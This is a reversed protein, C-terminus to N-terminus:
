SVETNIPVTILITTGHNHNSTIALTGQMKQVRSKINRLGLGKHHNSAIGVGNDTIELMLNNKLDYELTIKILTAKSHKICNHLGEEIIHYLNVKIFDNIHEWKIDDNHNFNYDLKGLYSRNQILKTVMLIFDNNYEILNNRLDHSLTRIETEIRQLEQLNFHHKKIVKSSGRLDLNGWGIRLAFLYSLIGDHLDESIRIREQNRGQKLKEHQRLTLLYIQENAKQQNTELQLLKNEAKQRYLWYTMIILLIILISGIIVWKIKSSLQENKAIYQDTEYQIRTFKNRTQREQNQIKKNLGIYQHLYNLANEPDMRSLLELTELLNSNNNIEQSLIYAKQLHQLAIATDKKSAYYKSLHVRSMIIGPINNMSDRIHLAKYFDNPLGITDNSKFKSYARNDMLRAYLFPSESRLKPTALASNFYNLASQHDGQQQYVVGINNQIDQNFYSQDPIHELNELAKQYYGIAKDYEELEEYIVGLLNYSYFLQKYKKQNKYTYIAKFLLVEAGTYDNLRSQILAMNYRMKATFYAHDMAIFHKKARRYHYYASDYISKQLFFAGYNWHIEGLKFTDKLKEAIVFAKQNSARFLLSDNISQAQYAVENLYKLKLSEDQLFLSSDYVKQLYYNRQTKSLTNTKAKDLLMSIEDGKTSGQNKESTQCQVLLTLVFCLLLSSLLYKFRLLKM